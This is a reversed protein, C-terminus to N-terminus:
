KTTRIVNSPFAIGDNRIELVRYYKMGPKIKNLQQKFRFVNENSPDPGMVLGISSFEKGNTSGQVEWYNSNERADVSWDMYLQNNQLNVKFNKVGAPSEINNQAKSSISIMLMASIITIYHKM